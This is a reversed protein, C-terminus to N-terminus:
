FKNAVDLICKAKKKTPPAAGARRSAGGGASPCTAAGGGGPQDGVEFAAEGVAARAVRHEARGAFTRRDAAALALARDQIAYADALTGPHQHRPHQQHQEAAVAEEGGIQFGLTQGGGPHVPPLGIGAVQDTGLLREGRRQWGDDM